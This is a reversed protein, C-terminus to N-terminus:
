HRGAVHRVVLLHREAELGPVRLSHSTELEFDASLDDFEAVPYAGKMILFRGDPRCLHRAGRILEGLTAYARAIITDFGASSQFQEVRSHVVSVNELGLQAVAQRMFRVKKGNSDLLTFQREPCVLALPIGPLGAGSGVDLIQEGHLYPMVVLSDMLHRSIMQTPQRVATLNYAQNWKELLAIFDLLKQEAQPPLSFPLEGARRSLQNSLATTM